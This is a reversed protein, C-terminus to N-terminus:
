LPPYGIPRLFLRYHGASVPWSCVDLKRMDASRLEIWYHPAAAQHLEICEHEIPGLPWNARHDSAVM